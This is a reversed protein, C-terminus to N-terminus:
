NMNKSSYKIKLKKSKITVLKLLANKYKGRNDYRSNRVRYKEKDRNLIFPTWLVCMYMANSIRTTDVMRVPLSTLPCKLASLIKKNQVTIQRIKYMLKKLLMRHRSEIMKSSRGTLWNETANLETSIRLSYSTDVLALSFECFLFCIWGYNEYTCTKNQIIEIM